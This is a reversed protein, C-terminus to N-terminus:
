YEFKFSGNPEFREERIYNNLKGRGSNRNGKPGNGNGNLKFPVTRFILASNLGVIILPVATLFSSFVLYYFGKRPGFFFSEFFM